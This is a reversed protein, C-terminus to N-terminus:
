KKVIVVVTLLFIIALFINALLKLFEDKNPNIFHNDYREIIDRFDDFDSNGISKNITSEGNVEIQINSKLTDYRSKIPDFYVWYMLDKLKYKGPEKPIIFYNFNKTGTVANGSRNIDQYINPPYVDFEPRDVLIPNKISAINGEGVIKFSYNITQGTNVKREKINEELKFRGVSVNDKLPHSPLDKVQITLPKSSFDKFDQKENNLGFFSPNKAVKYKIMRLSLSPFKITNTNLPYLTARYLKYEVYKKGDIEVEQPQIEEIGFNEEWCNAPKLKKVLEQMQGGIDYFQMKAKNTHAVYFGLTITFGEGVYVKDKTSTLAFFADDNVDIYEKKGGRGFFDAFPDFANPDSYEEREKPPGVVVVTGQVTIQKGNVEMTFNPIKFKGEKTPFYNQVISQSFSIKGNVINTSSQTSIGRKQFTNIEPFPSYNKIQENSVTLTISFYENLAINTNSYKVQIDQAISYTHLGLLIAFAKLIKKM